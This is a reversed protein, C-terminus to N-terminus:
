VITITKTFGLTFIPTWWKDIMSIPIRLTTLTAYPLATSTTISPGQLVMPMAQIPTLQLNKCSFGFAKSQTQDLKLMLPPTFLRSELLSVKLVEGLIVTLKLKVEGVRKCQKRPIDQPLPRAKKPEQPENLLPASKPMDLQDGESESASPVRTRKARGM